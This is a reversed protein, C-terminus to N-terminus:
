LFRQEGREYGLEQGFNGMEPLRNDAHINKYALFPLLM